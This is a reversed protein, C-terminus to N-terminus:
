LLQVTLSQDDNIHILYTKKRSFFSKKVTITLPHCKGFTVTEQMEYTGFITSVRILRHKSPPTETM